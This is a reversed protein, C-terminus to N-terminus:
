LSWECVCGNSLSYSTTLEAFMYKPTIDIRVKIQSNFTQANIMFVEYELHSLFTNNINFYYMYYYILLYSIHSRTTETLWNVMYVMMECKLTAANYVHVLLWM